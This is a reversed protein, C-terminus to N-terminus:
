GRNQQQNYEQSLISPCDKTAAETYKASTQDNAREQTGM